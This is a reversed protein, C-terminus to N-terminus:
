WGCIYHAIYLNYHARVHICRWTCQLKVADPTLVHVGCLMCMCICAPKLASYLVNRAYVYMIFSEVVYVYVFAM